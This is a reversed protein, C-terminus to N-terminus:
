RGAQNFRGSCTKWSFYFFEELRQNPWLGGGGGVAGGVGLGGWLGLSVCSQKYVLTDELANLLVSFVSVFCLNGLAAYATLLEESIGAVNDERSAMCYNEPNNGLRSHTNELPLLPSSLTVRILPSIFVDLLLLFLLLLRQTLSRGGRRIIVPTLRRLLVSFVDVVSGSRFTLLHFLSYRFTERWQRKSLYICIFLHHHEPFRLLPVHLVFLSQLTKQIQNKPFFVCAIKLIPLLRWSCRSWWM